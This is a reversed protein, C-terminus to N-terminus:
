PTDGAVEEGAVRWRGPNASRYIATALSWNALLSIVNGAGIADGGSLGFSDALSLGMTFSALSM